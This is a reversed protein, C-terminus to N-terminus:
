RAIVQTRPMRADSVFRAIAGAIKEGGRVSPEIPNAFDEDSDCILRLDILAMDRAFAERTICDNILMLAAAAIRRQLPDPFRAEYITCIATALGRRQAGDLMARYGREFRDRIDSLKGLAEAVSHAPEDLV